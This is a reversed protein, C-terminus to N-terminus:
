ANITGGNIGCDIWDIQEPFAGAESCICVAYGKIEDYLRIQIKQNTEVDRVFGFDRDTVYQDIGQGIGRGSLKVVSEKAAWMQYFMKTRRDDDSDKIALLRDYEEKSYFRKALQLKWSAMEQIDCGVPARDVVCIIWRGSHSLSYHFDDYGEIYPKGYAGKEIKVQQWEQECYGMDLFAHRLLLGATISREKERENKLASVKERRDSDLLEWLKEINEAGAECTKAAYIKM